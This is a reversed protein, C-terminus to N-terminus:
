REIDCGSEELAAGKKWTAPMSTLPNSTLYL